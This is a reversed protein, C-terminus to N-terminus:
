FNRYTMYTSRKSKFPWQMNEFFMVQRDAEDLTGPPFDSCLYFFDPAIDEFIKMVDEETYLCAATHSTNDDLLLAQVGKHDLNIFSSIPPYASLADSNNSLSSESSSTSLPQLLAPTLAPVPPNLNRLFPVPLGPPLEPGHINWPVTVFPHPKPFLRPIQVCNYHRSLDNIAHWKDKLPYYHTRTEVIEMGKPIYVLLASCALESPLITNILAPDVIPKAPRKDKEEMSYLMICVLDPYYRFGIEISPDCQGECYFNNTDCNDFISSMTSTTPSSSPKPIAASWLAKQYRSPM